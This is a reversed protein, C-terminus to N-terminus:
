AKELILDPLGVNQLLRNTYRIESERTNLEPRRAMADISFKYPLGTKPSYYAAKGSLAVRLSNETQVDKRDDSLYLPLITDNSANFLAVLGHKSNTYDDGNIHAEGCHQFVIRAKSEEALKIVANHMFQNRYALKRGIFRDYLTMTGYQARIESLCGDIFSNESKKYEKTPADNFASQIDKSKIKSALYRYYVQRTYPSDALSNTFSLAATQVNGLQIIKDKVADYIGRFNDQLTKILLDSHLEHTILPKEDHEILAKIVLANFKQHSPKDHEEGALVYLAKDHKGEADMKHRLDMIAKIAIVASHLVHAADEDVSKIDIANISNIETNM